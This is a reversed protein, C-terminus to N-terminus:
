ICHNTGWECTSCPIHLGNKSCSRSCTPSELGSKFKSGCGGTTLELYNKWNFPCIVVLTVDVWCSWLKSATGRVGLRMDSSQFDYKNTCTSQTTALQDCNPGLFMQQEFDCTEQDRLWLEFWDSFNMNCVKILVLMRFLRACDPKTTGRPRTFVMSRGSKRETGVM